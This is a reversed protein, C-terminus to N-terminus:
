RAAHAARAAHERAPVMSQLWQQLRGLDKILAADDLLLGLSVTMNSSVQTFPAPHVVRVRVPSNTQHQHQHQVYHQVNHRATLQRQSPVVEILRSAQLSM